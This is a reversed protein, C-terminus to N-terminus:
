GLFEKHAKRISDMTSSGPDKKSEPNKEGSVLKDVAYVGGAIAVLTLILKMWGRKGGEDSDPEEVPEENPEEGPEEMETKEHLSEHPSRMIEHAEEPTKEHGFRLHGFLGRKFILEGCIPCPTKESKNKM